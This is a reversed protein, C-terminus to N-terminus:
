DYPPPGAPVKSIGKEVKDQLTDVCVTCSYISFSMLAVVSLILKAM